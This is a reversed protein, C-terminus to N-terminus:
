AQAAQAARLLAAARSPLAEAELQSAEKAEPARVARAKAVARLVQAEAAEQRAASLVHPPEQAALLM